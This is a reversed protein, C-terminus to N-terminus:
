QINNVETVSAPMSIAPMSIAPVSIAPVSIAPVSIAPMSIADDEEEEEEEEELVPLPIESISAQSPALLDGRNTQELLYEVAIREGTVLMSVFIFFPCVYQVYM